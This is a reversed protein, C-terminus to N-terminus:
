SAVEVSAAIQKDQEACWEDFRLNATMAADSHTSIAPWDEGHILGGLKKHFPNAGDSKSWGDFYAKIAQWVWFSLKTTSLRNDFGAELLGFAKLHREDVYIIVPAYGRKSMEETLIAQKARERQKNETATRPRGAKPKPGPTASMNKRWTNIFRRNYSTNSSKYIGLICLRKRPWFRM